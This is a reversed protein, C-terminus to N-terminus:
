FLIKDSLTTPVYEINNNNLNVISTIIKYKFSDINTIRNSTLNIEKLVQNIALSDALSDISTISNAYLNIETLTSNTVLIKSLPTIDNIYNFGLDIYELSGLNEMLSTIDTIKNNQLELNTLSSFKGIDHIDTINNYNLNICNLSNSKSILEALINFDNNHIKNLSLNLAKWKQTINDSLACTIIYKWNHWINLDELYPFKKGDISDSIMWNVNIIKPIYNNYLSIEYIQTMKIHPYELNYLISNTRMLRVLDIDKLLTELSQLHGLGLRPSSIMRPLPSNGRRETKQIEKQIINM